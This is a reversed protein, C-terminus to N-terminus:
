HTENQSYNIAMVIYSFVGKAKWDLRSLVKWEKTQGASSEYGMSSGDWCSYTTTLQKLIDKEKGPIDEEYM